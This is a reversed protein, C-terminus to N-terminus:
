LVVILSTINYPASHQGVFLRYTWCILTTSNHINHQGYLFPDLRFHHYVHYALPLVLQLFAQGVDYALPLVLQLFTQGVDTSITQVHGVSVELPALIYHSGLTRYYYSSLFLFILNVHSSVTFHSKVQFSAIYGFIWGEISSFTFCSDM